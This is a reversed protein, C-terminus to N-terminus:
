YMGLLYDDGDVHCSACQQAGLGEAGMVVEGEPGVVYAEYFYWSVPQSSRTEKRMVVWGAPIGEETLELVIAAGPTTVGREAELSGVRVDNLYAGGDGRVGSRVPVRGDGFGRCEQEGVFLELRRHRPRV